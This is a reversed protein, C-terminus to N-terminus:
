RGSRTTLTVSESARGIMFSMTPLGTSNPDLTASTSTSSPNTTPYSVATSLGDSMRNTAEASSRRRRRNRWAGRPPAMSRPYQSLSM